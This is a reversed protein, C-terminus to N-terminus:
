VGRRGLEGADLKLDPPQDVVALPQDPHADREVDVQEPV